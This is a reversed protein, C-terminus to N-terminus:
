CRSRALRSGTKRSPQCRSRTEQPGIITAWLQRATENVHAQEEPGLSEIHEIGALQNRLQTTLDNVTRREDASLTRPSGQDLNSHLQDLQDLFAKTDEIEPPSSPFDGPGSQANRQDNSACATIFLIFFASLSFIRM